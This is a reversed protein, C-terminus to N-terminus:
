VEQLSFQILYQSLGVYPTRYGDSVLVAVLKSLGKLEINDFVTVPTLASQTTLLQEFLDAQAPTVVFALSPWQLKNVTSKIVVLSSNVARGDVTLLGTMTPPQYSNDDAVWQLQLVDAVDPHALQLYRDATTLTSTETSGTNFVYM